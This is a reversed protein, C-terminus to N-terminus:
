QDIKENYYITFNGRKVGSDFGADFFRKLDGRSYKHKGKCNFLEFYMEFLERLLKNKGKIEEESLEM